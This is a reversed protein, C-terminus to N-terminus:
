IYTRLSLGEVREYYASMPIDTEDDSLLSLFQQAGDPMRVM